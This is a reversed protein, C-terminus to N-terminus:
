SGLTAIKKLATKTMNKTLSTLRGLLPKTTPDSGADRKAWSNGRKSLFTLAENADLDSDGSLHRAAVVLEATQTAQEKRASIEAEKQHTLKILNLRAEIATSDIPHSRILRGDVFAGKVVAITQCEIDGTVVANADLEVDTATIPGNVRGNVVVSEADLHGSIEGDRGVVLKTALIDGEIQGHVEVRGEAVLRGVLKFGRALISRNRFQRFM